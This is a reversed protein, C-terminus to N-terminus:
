KYANIFEKEELNWCLSKAYRQVNLKKELIDEVQLNMLYNKFSDPDTENIVWGLNNDKILSAMYTLNSSVVVPLGALLYESFKNPLSYQYSLGVKKNIFIIGIDASSTYAVIENMPVSSQYHINSYMESNLIIEDELIGFGMIVIHISDSNITSFSELLKPIGRAPALIGQYIFLLDSDKLYFKAKLINIRPLNEEAMYPLNRVVYISKCQYNEIYWNKIPECVVIVSDSFRIFFREIIKFIYKVKNSLGEKESELEHPSYILKTNKGLILKVLVCFPLLDVRRCTIFNPKLKLSVSIIGLYYSSLFYLMKILSFIEKRMRKRYDHPLKSMLLIQNPGFNITKIGDGEGTAWVYDKGVIGLDVLSKSTKLIRSANKLSCPYVQINIKQSNM